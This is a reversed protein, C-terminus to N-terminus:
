LYPCFLSGSGQPFRDIIHKLGEYTRAFRHDDKINRQENKPQKLGEYTRAFSRGQRRLRDQGRDRKLGEYTRAFSRSM